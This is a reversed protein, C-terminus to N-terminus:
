SDVSRSCCSALNDQSKQHQVLIRALTERVLTGEVISAVKPGDSSLMPIVQLSREEARKYSKFTKPLIAFVFAPVIERGGLGSFTSTRSIEYLSYRKSHWETTV